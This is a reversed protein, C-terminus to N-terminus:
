LKRPLLYSANSELSEINETTTWEYNGSLTHDKDKIKKFSRRIESIFNGSSFSM